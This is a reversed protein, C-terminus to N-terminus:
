RFHYILELGARAWRYDFSELTTESSQSIFALEIGSVANLGVHAHAGLSFRESCQYVLGAGWEAGWQWGPFEEAVAVQFGSSGVASSSVGVSYANMKATFLNVGTFAQLGESVTYYLTLPAQLAFYAMRLDLSENVASHQFQSSNQVFTMQDAGLGTELTWKGFSKSALGHVGLSPSLAPNFVTSPGNSHVMAATRLKVSFRIQEWSSQASAAQSLFVLGCMLFVGVPGSFFRASHKM